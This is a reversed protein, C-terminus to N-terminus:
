MDFDFIKPKVLAKGIAINIRAKAFASGDYINDDILKYGNVLGSQTLDQWGAELYLDIAGGVKIKSQTSLRVGSVLNVGTYIPKSPNPIYDVGHNFSFYSVVLEQKFKKSKSWTLKGQVPLVITSSWKKSFRHYWLLVPAGIFRDGYYSGYGGIVVFNKLGHVVSTGVFLSPNITSHKGHSKGETIRVNGSLLLTRLKKNQYRVWVGTFGAKYTQFSGFYSPSSYHHSQYGLEGFVQYAKPTVNGMVDKISKSTLIGKWDLDFDLKGKLPVLVNVGSNWYSMSNTQTNHLFAGDFAVRPKFLNLDLFQANTQIAIICAILAILRKM